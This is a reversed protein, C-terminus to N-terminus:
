VRYYGVIGEFIGDAARSRGDESALLLEEDPNSIFAVEVLISPMPAYRIMFFSAFRAGRDNVALSDILRKQVITALRSADANGHHYTTAGNATSSIFGDNHISILLGAKTQKAFSMRAELEEQATASDHAVSQDTERTMYVKAGNRELRERLLLAIALTNDKEYTGAPGIAGPDRGGHGPDICILKGLLRTSDMEVDQIIQRDAYAIPRHSDTNLYIVSTAANYHIRWNQALAITKLTLLLDKSVRIKIPLQQGNLLIRM